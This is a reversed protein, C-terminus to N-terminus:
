RVLGAPPTAPPRAALCRDLASQLSALSSPLRARAVDIAFRADDVPSTRWGVFLVRGRLAVAHVNGDRGEHWARSDASDNRDDGLVLVADKAAYLPGAHEAVPAGADYFVLYSADGLFEVELEGRATGVRAEGLACSPVPWGNISPRGRRMELVDGPRAVVRKVLTEGPHEPSDFVIIEGYHPLDGRKSAYIRDGPLLTPEMSRTPVVFSQMFFEGSVAAATPTAVLGLVIVLATQWLPPPPGEALKWLDVVCIILASVALAIAAGFTLRWGLHPGIAAAGAGFALVCAPPVVVWALGRRRRGLYFHGVGTSGILTLFFAVYKRRTM